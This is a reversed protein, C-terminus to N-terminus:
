SRCGIDAALESASAYRRVRDKELARMTIWDIDGSLLRRLTAPDTRRRRASEAPRGGRLTSLRTSPKSPEQERITRRIEDFGARRLEKHDFPLAGVLLVYLLVGLSYVDTRTDVNQGTMEAQEPSMYEPTGIMVGLETFLTKETLRHDVAKAVGFDIIKPTAQDEKYSVLVNSPKLDRHIIAKQHAHQVGECVRQFLELRERTTLRQRDCHETIPVGQVFEMAFYPRGGETSGADFVKAVSPHDMMALAQREAAFRAVVQKTDMGHKIVKLAVKRRVPETQEALYVVGMGGEGLKDLIKYPGICHPTGVPAPVTATDEENPPTTREDDAM